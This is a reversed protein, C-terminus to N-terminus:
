PQQDRVRSQRNNALDESFEQLCDDVIAFLRLSRKGMFWGRLGMMAALQFICM